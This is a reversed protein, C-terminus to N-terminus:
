AVGMRHKAILHELWHDRFKIYEVSGLETDPPLIGTQIAASRLFMSNPVMTRIEDLVADCGVEYEDVTLEYVIHAHYLAGCIRYDKDQQVYDNADRALYLKATELIEHVPKM